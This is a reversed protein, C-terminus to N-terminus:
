PAATTTSTTTTTTTDDCGCSCYSGYTKELYTLVDQAESILGIRNLRKASVIGSNIDMLEYLVKHKDCAQLYQKQKGRAMQDSRCTSIVNKDKFYVYGELAILPVLKLTGIAAFDKTQGVVLVNGDDFPFDYVKQTGDAFTLTFSRSAFLSVVNDIYNTLDNISYQSCDCSQVGTFNVTLSM